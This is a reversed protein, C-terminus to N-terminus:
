GQPRAAFALMLAIAGVLPWLLTVLALDFWDQRAMRSAGSDIQIGVLAYLLFWTM